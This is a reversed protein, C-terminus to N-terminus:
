RPRKVPRTKPLPRAEGQFIVAKVRKELPEAEAVRKSERLLAAYVRMVDFLMADSFGLMEGASFARKLLISADDTKAQMLALRARYHMSTLHAIGRIRIARDVLPEADAYRQQVSFFEAMKDLTLAVM